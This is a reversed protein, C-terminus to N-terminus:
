QGAQEPVLLVLYWGTTRIRAALVSDKGQTFTIPWGKNTESQEIVSEAAANMVEDPSSVGKELGLAALGRDARFYVVAEGAKTNEEVLFAATKPDSAAVAKGRRNMIVARAGPVPTLDALVGASLQALTIDRSVVGLLTDGDFAPCSVTVMMGAGVLDLYPSEWGCAKHDLDVATYYKQQTPRNNKQAEALSLFPYIVFNDSATTLYVWSFPFADHAAALAPALRTLTDLQRFTEDTLKEDTYAFYAPCPAGGAPEQGCLGDPDRFAVTQDRVIRNELWRDREKSSIPRATRSLDRYAAALGRASGAVAALTDDIRGAAQNILATLLTPSCDTKALAPRGTLLVSSALLVALMWGTLRPM